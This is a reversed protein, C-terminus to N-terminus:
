ETEVSRGPVAEADPLGEELREMVARLEFERMFDRLAGRDPHSTLVEELSLGTDIDCQLTALQKSVRADDAHEVLNQKRKAGSVKEVNALVEELSGFEQLLQAATKDGIGPVGPINDSTDGKLGILDTVLEPPVGYREIVGERDYIRTDTVGRSTTMVRVGDEVLQYVDREGSVVM